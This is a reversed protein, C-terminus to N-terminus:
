RGEKGVRREESRSHGPKGALKLRFLRDPEGKIKLVLIRQTTRVALEVGGSIVPRDGDRHWEKHFFASAENRDTNLEVEIDGRDDALESGPPLRIEFLAQPKAANRNLTDDLLLMLGIVGAAGAVVTGLTLGSYVGVTAVSRAGGRLRLALWVGIPLGILAGIPACVFVVFYGAAGEFTSMRTAAAIAGGSFAGAVAGAVLGVVGGLLAVLFTLTSGAGPVEQGRDAADMASAVPRRPRAPAHLEVARLRSADPGPRGFGVDDM